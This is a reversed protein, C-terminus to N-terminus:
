HMATTSYTWCFGSGFGSRSNDLLGPGLSLVVLRFQLAISILLKEHMDRTDGENLIETATISEMIDVGGIAGRRIAM